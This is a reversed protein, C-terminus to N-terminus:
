PVWLTVEGTKLTRPVDILRQNTSGCFPLSIDKQELIFPGDVLVDIYKMVELDKVQEWTYGTYLWITKTPQHLKIDRCLSLIDERNHPYLPDGGSFTIGNIWPNKLSAHIQNAVEKTLLEGSNEDWTGPNHCGQCHHNCGSVFVVVRIGIGNAIDNHTIKQYKM